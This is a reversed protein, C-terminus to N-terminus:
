VTSPLKTKPDMIESTILEDTRADYKIIMGQLFCGLVRTKYLAKVLMNKEIVIKNSAMEVV